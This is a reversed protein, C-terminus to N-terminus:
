SVDMLDGLAQNSRLDVGRRVGNGSFTKFPMPKKRAVVKEQSILAMKLADEFVEGLTCSREHSVRKAELLLEDSISVTTRM